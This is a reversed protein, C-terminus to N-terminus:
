TSGSDEEQHHDLIVSSNALLSSLRELLEKLARIEDDPMGSRAALYLIADLLEGSHVWPRMTGEVKFPKLTRVTCPIRSHNAVVFRDLEESM